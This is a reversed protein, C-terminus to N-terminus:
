DDTESCWEDVHDLQRQNRRGSLLLTEAAAGSIQVNTLGTAAVNLAYFVATNGNVTNGYGSLLSSNNYYTVSGIRDIENLLQVFKVNISEWSQDNVTSPTSQAALERIRILMANVENLAGEATQILNIVHESSITGQRLGSLEARMGESISLGSADDAARNIRFGSSLRELRMKLNRNNIRGLRQTNISPINHNIRIPM